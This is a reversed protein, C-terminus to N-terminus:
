LRSSIDTAKKKVTFIKNISNGTLSRMHILYRGETLNGIKVFHQFSIPNYKCDVEKKDVDLIPLIIIVNGQRIVQINEPKLNLCKNPMEGLLLVEGNETPSVIDSIFLNSVPAYIYDDTANSARESVNFIVSSPLGDMGTFQIIFQGAPLNGISVPRNYKVPFNLYAPITKPNTCDPISRVNIKQSVLLLKQELNARVQTEGLEFCSNPLVGDIVFQINDNDDFGNEIVFINDLKTELAMLNNTALFLLSLVSLLKLKM